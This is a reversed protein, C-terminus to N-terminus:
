QQTVDALARAIERESEQERLHSWGLHTIAGPGEGVGDEMRWGRSELQGESCSLWEKWCLSLLSAGPADQWGSSDKTGGKNDRGSQINRRKTLVM